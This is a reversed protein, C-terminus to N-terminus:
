KIFLAIFLLILNHHYMYSLLVSKEILPMLGASFNTDQTHAIVAFFIWVILAAELLGMLFGLIKNIGYIVPVHIIGFPFLGRKFGLIALFVMLLVVIILLVNM